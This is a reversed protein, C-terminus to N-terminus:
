VVGLVGRWRLLLRLRRGCIWSMKLSVLELGLNSCSEGPRTLLLLSLNGVVLINRILTGVLRHM